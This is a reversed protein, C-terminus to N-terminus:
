ERPEFPKQGLHGNQHIRLYHLKSIMVIGAITTNEELPQTDDASVEDKDICGYHSNRLHGICITGLM